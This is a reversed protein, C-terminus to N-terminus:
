TSANRALAHAVAEPSVPLLELTVIVPDTDSVEFDWAIVRALWRGAHTGIVVASGPVVDRVNRADRLVAWINGDDDERHPDTVIDVNLKLAVPDPTHAAALRDVVSDDIQDV